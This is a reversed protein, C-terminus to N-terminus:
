GNVGGDKPSDHQAEELSRVVAALAPRDAIEKKFDDSPIQDSAQDYVLEGDHLILFRDVIGAAQAAWQTSFIVTGGAQAHVQIQERLIQLGNADLGCSFPEDFLWVQPRVLFLGIMALKYSQGKSLSGISKAYCGVLNLREFWEAADDAITPYDCQYDEITEIISPGATASKAEGGEILMLNRRVSARAPKLLRDNYSIRGAAVPLWGAMLKLLTSKGAGNAGLLATVSGPSFATTVNSVAIDTSFNRGVQNLKLM